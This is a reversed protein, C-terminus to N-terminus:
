ASGCQMEPPPERPPESLRAVFRAFNVNLAEKGSGCAYNRLVDDPQPLGDRWLEFGYWRLLNLLELASSGQRELWLPALLFVIAHVARAALLGKAGHLLRVDCGQVGMKLLHVVPPRLGATRASPPWLVDDLKTSLVVQPPRQGEPMDVPTDLVSNGSNRQQIYLTHEATEEALAVPLLTTREQWGNSVIGAALQMFSSPNPEAALLQLSPDAALMQFSCTGINAGADVFLPGAHGHGCSRFSSGSTIAARDWEELLLDCGPWRGHERIRFGIIADEASLCIRASGRQLRLDLWDCQPSGQAFEVSSDFDLALVCGAQSPGRLRFKNPEHAQAPPLTRRLTLRLEQMNFNTASASRIDEVVFHLGLDAFLPAGAILMDRMSEVSWLHLHINHPYRTGLFRSASDVDEPSLSLPLGLVRSVHDEAPPMIQGFWSSVPGLSPLGSLERLVNVGAVSVGAERCHGEFNEAPAGDRQFEEVFHEPRAVLRFRDGFAFSLDCLDPVAVFVLGGPRVVRLWHRLAGLVNPMHELVHAAVLLDFTSDAVKGLTTADDVIDPVKAGDSLFCQSQLTKRDTAMDVYKMRVNSPMTVALQCAGIEVGTLSTKSQGHVAQLQDAVWYNRVRPATVTRQTAACRPEDGWSSGPFTQHWHSEWRQRAIVVEDLDVAAGGALPPSLLFNPASSDLKVDERLAVNRPSPLEHQGAKEQRDVSVGSSASAPSRAPKAEEGHAEDQVSPLGLLRTKRDIM